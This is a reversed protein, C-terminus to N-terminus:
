QKLIEKLRAKEEISLDQVKGNARRRRRVYTAGIGSAVLLMVPGALWLALNSGSTLPKLLVYEGYRQVIFDIADQDSDGAVLRERLLVRLDKALAANSEDISENRCVLCRLGQSLDRARAELVPDSLVEAPEVAHLPMACIVLVALSQKLM